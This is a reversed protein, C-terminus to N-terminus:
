EVLVVAGTQADVYVSMLELGKFGTVLWTKKGSKTVMKVSLASDLHGKQVTLDIASKATIAVEAGTEEKVKIKIAEGIIELNAVAEISLGVGIEGSENMGIVADTDKVGGKIEVLGEAVTVDTDSRTELKIVPAFIYSNSGTTHLSKDVLFDFVVSSEKGAEVTLKGVLKLDNSPLKATTIKGSQKEVIEVKSTEIRVQNYIGAELNAETMIALAGSTKLKLLDFQKTEESVTVWGKVASHVRVEKITIIVSEINELNAAADTVAFVVRGENTLPPPLPAPKVMSPTEDMGPATTQVTEKPGPGVILIAALVIIILAMIGLAYKM